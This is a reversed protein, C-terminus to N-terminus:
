YNVLDIDNDLDIDYNKGSLITAKRGPSNKDRDGSKKDSVQKSAHSVNASKKQSEKHSSSSEKSSGLKEKQSAKPHLKNKDDMRKNGCSESICGCQNKKNANEMFVEM